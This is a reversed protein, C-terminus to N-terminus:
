RREGDFMTDSPLVTIRGEHLSSRTQSQHNYPQAMFQKVLTDEDALGPKIQALDNPTLM